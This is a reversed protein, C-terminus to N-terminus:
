LLFLICFVFPINQLAVISVFSLFSMSLHRFQFQLGMRGFAFFVCKSQLTIAALSNQPMSCIAGTYIRTFGPPLPLGWTHCWLWCYSTLRHCSRIGALRFVSTQCYINLITVPALAVTHPRIGWTNHRKAIMVEYRFPVPSIMGCTDGL